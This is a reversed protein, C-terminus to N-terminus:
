AVISQRYDLHVRTGQILCRVSEHTSQKLSNANLKDILGGVRKVTDDTVKASAAPWHQCGPGGSKRVLDPRTRAPDPSYM